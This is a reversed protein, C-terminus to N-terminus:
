GISPYIKEVDKPIIILKNDMKKDRLTGRKLKIWHNKYWVKSGQLIQLVILHVIIYTLKM